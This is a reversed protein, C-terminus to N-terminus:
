RQPYYITNTRLTVTLNTLYGSANTIGAVASVYVLTNTAPSNTAPAFHLANTAGWYSNRAWNNTSEYAMTGADSFQALTFNLFTVVPLNAVQSLNQPSANSVIGFPVGGTYGSIQLRYNGPAISNSVYGNTNPTYTYAVSGVINTGLGVIQNTAPWSSITIANTLPAGTQDIGYYVWPQLYASFASPALAFALLQLSFASVLLRPKFTAPKLM